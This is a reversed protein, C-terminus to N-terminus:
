QMHTGWHPRHRVEAQVLTSLILMCLVCAAAAAGRVLRMHILDFIDVRLKWQAPVMWEM